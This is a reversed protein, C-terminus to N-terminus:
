PIIPRHSHVLCRLVSADPQKPHIDCLIDQVSQLELIPSQSCVVKAVIFISQPVPKINWNQLHDIINWFYLHKNGALLTPNFLYSIFLSTVIKNWPPQLFSPLQVCPTSISFDCKLFVDPPPFALFHVWGSCWQCQVLGVWFSGHKQKNTFHLLNCREEVGAALSTQRPWVHNWCLTWLLCFTTISCSELGKFHKERWAVLVWCIFNM